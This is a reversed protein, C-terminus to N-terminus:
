FAKLQFRKGQSKGGTLHMGTGNLPAEAGARRPNQGAWDM